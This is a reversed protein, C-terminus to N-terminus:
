DVFYSRLYKMYMLVRKPSPNEVGMHKLGDVAQYLLLQRIDRPILPWMQQVDSEMCSEEQLLMKSM